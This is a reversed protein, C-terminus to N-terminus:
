EKKKAVKCKKEEEAEAENECVGIAKAIDVILTRINNSECTCAISSRNSGKKKVKECVPAHPIQVEILEMLLSRLRPM